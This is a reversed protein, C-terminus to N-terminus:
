IFEILINPNHNLLSQVIFLLTIQKITNFLSNGMYFPADKPDHDLNCDRNCDRDCDRYNKSRTLPTYSFHRGFFLFM